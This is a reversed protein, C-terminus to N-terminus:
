LIKGFLARRNDKRLVFEQMLKKVDLKDLIDKHVHCLAINNLHMQGCTSRTYSKLRRLSSFSREATASSAPNVLLLRVLAEVTPFMERMAPVMQLIEVCTIVNVTSNEVANCMAPLLSFMKLEAELTSSRRLEPYESVIDSLKATILVMELEVSFEMLNSFAVLWSGM